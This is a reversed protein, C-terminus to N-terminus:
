KTGQEKTTCVLHGMGFIFLILKAISLSFHLEPCFTKLDQEKEKTLKEDNVFEKSM